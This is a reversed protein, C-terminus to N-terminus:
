ALKTANGLIKGLTTMGLRVGYSPHAGRQREGPGPRLDSARREGGGVHFRRLVGGAGRVALGEPRRHDLLCTSSFPLQGLQEHAPKASSGQGDHGPQEARRPGQPRRSATSADCAQLVDSLDHDVATCYIM